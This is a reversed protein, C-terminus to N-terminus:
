EEVDPPQQIAFYQKPLYKYIIPEIQELSNINICYHCGNYIKRLDSRRALWGAGDVFNVFIKKQDYRVNEGVIKQYMENQENARTTQNSSTTEMYSSMILIIPNELSPIVIDVEKGLAMAQVQGKAQTFGYIDCLRNIKEVL